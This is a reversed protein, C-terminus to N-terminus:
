IHSPKRRLIHRYGKIFLMIMILSALFDTIPQAFWLGDSGMIKPLLFITIGLIVSQRSANLLAAIKPKGTMMMFSAGLTPISALVLLMMNKKIGTVAIDVLKPDHTFLSVTFRPFELTTLTGVALIFISSIIAQALTKLARDYRNNAYNFGIIPQSGQAIGFVPMMFVATISTIVTMAGVYLEGGYLTLAYNSVLQAISMSIQNSFPVFGILLMTKINAPYLKLHSVTLRLTPQRKMFYFFGLAITVIQAMITAIAAGKIGMQLVPVFLADLGINIICGTLSILASFIPSGDARIILPLGFGLMNFVAGLVIVTIYEKTYTLTEGHIGLFSLIQNQFILYLITFVIGSIVSLTIASGATNEAEKKKREGLKISIDSSAGMSILASIGTIVTTIPITLGVGVLCIGGIDPIHGIFIRDISIYLSNVLLSLVTPASYQILLKGIPKKELEEIKNM